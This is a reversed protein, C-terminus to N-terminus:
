EMQGDFLELWEHAPANEADCPVAGDADISESPLGNAVDERPALVKDELEVAEREANV